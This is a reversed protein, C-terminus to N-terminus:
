EESILPCNELANNAVVTSAPINISELMTCNAFAYDDVYKLSSSDGFQVLKLLMCNYFAHDEIRYLNSAVDVRMISQNNAFANSAVKYVNFNKELNNVVNPISLEMLNANDTGTVIAYGAEVYLTYKINRYTYEETTLNFIAYYSNDENYIITIENEESIINGSASSEAWGIFMSQGNAIATLTLEEGNESLEAQVSGLTDDNCYVNYQNTQKSDSKRIAFFYVCLIIAAVVILLCFIVMFKKLAGNNHEVKTTPEQAKSINKDEKKEKTKKKSKFNNIVTALEEDYNFNSDVEPSDEKNEEQKDPNAQETEKKVSDSDDNMENYSSNNLLDDLNNKEEM